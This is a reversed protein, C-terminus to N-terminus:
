YIARLGALEVLRGFVAPLAIQLPISAAVGTGIGAVIQRAPSPPLRLGLLGAAGIPLSVLLPVHFLLAFLTPWVPVGGETVCSAALLALRGGFAALGVGIAVPLFWTRGGARRGLVIALVVAPAGLILASGAWAAFFFFGM